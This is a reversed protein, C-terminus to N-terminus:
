REVLWALANYGRSLMLEDDEQRRWMLTRAAAGTAFGAVVAFLAWALGWIGIDSLWADDLGGMGMGELCKNIHLNHLSATFV